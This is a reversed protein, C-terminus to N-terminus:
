PTKEEEVTVARFHYTRLMAKLLAKLHRIVAGRDPHIHRIRLRFIRVPTKVTTSM